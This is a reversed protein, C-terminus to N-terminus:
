ILERFESPSVGISQKFAVSFYHQNEFGVAYGVEYVKMNTTRLLEAARKIRLNNVYNSVSSGTSSKFIKGFYNKSLGLENALMGVTIENSNETIYRNILDKAKANNISRRRVECSKLTHISMGSLEALKKRSIKAARRARELKTPNPNFKPM